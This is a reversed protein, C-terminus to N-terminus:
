DGKESIPPDDKGAKGGRKDGARIIGSKDVYFSLMGTGKVGYEVPIAVAEFGADNGSVEFKYGSEQKDSLSRNLLRADVLENLSGYKGAGKTSKYTYQAMRINRMAGAAFDENSRRKSYYCSMLIAIVCVSFMFVLTKTNAKM